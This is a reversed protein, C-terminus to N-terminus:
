KMLKFKIHTSKGSNWDLWYLNSYRSKVYLCGCVMRLRCVKRIRHWYPTCCACTTRVAFSYYNCLCNSHCGLSISYLAYISEVIKSGIEAKQDHNRYIWFLFTTFFQRSSKQLLNSDASCSDHWNGSFYLKISTELTTSFPKEVKRLMMGILGDWSGNNFIGAKNDPSPVITYRLFTLLGILVNNTPWQLYVHALLSVFYVSM